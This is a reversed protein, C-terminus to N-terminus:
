RNRIATWAARGRVSAPAAHALTEGAGACWNLREFDLGQKAAVARVTGKDICRQKDGTYYPHMLKSSSDHGVGLAHGFEHMMIGGLDRSGLRDTVVLILAKRTGLTVALARNLKTDGIMPHRSDAKAVVWGDPRRAGLSTYATADFDEPSLDLRVQGNLVVNWENVARFIKAREHLNFARDIRVPVVRSPVDQPPVNTYQIAGAACPQESGDRVVCSSVDACAALSLFLSLALILNRM